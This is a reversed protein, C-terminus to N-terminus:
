RWKVGKLSDAPLPSFCWDCTFSGKTSPPYDVQNALISMPKDKLSPNLMRNFKNQVEQADVSTPESHPFIYVAQPLSRLAKTTLYKSPQPVHMEIDMPRGVDVDATPQEVIPHLPIPTRSQSRPVQLHEQRSKRLLFQAYTETMCQTLQELLGAGADAYLAKLSLHAVKEFSTFDFTEAFKRTKTIQSRGPSQRIAIGLHNLREITASIAELSSINVQLHQRVNSSDIEM